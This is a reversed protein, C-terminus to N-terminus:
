QAEADVKEPHPTHAFSFGGVDIRAAVPKSLNALYEGPNQIGSGSWAAAAAYEGRVAGQPGVKLRDVIVRNTSEATAVQPALSFQAEDFYVALGIVGDRRNQRGTVIMQGSAPLFSEAPLDRIGVGLEYEHDQELRIPIAQFRCRVFAEGADISYQAKLRIVDNGIAWDDLTSEVIARLPGDAVIRYHPVMEPSPKHAYDPVNMPPQYVKDLRRLYIGGLGLTDGIHFVDRGIGVDLRPPVYAALDNDLGFNGAARGQVDLFFGGYTRYGILESEFAAVQRNYGYSHKAQVRKPWWIVDNLTTSYYIDVRRREGAALSVPFEFQDVIGDGDVDDSQSAIPTAAHTNEDISIAIACRGPFEPAVERAQNVSVTALGRVADKGPNSVAVSLRFAFNPMLWGTAAPGPQAALIGAGAILTLVVRSAIM